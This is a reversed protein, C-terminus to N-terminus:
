GSIVMQEQELRYAKLRREQEMREYEKREKEKAYKKANERQKKTLGTSSKGASSLSNLSVFSVNKSITTSRTSNRKHVVQWGGEDNMTNRESLITSTDNGYLQNYGNSSDSLTSVSITSDSPILPLPPKTNKLHPAKGTSFGPSSLSANNFLNPSSSSSETISLTSNTNTVLESQHSHSPTFTLSNKEAVPLKNKSKKNTKRKQLSSPSTQDVLGNPATSVLAVANSSNSNKLELENIVSSNKNKKMLPREHVPAVVNQHRGQGVFYMILLILAGFSALCLIYLATVPSMTLFHQLSMPKFHDWFRDFTQRFYGLTRPPERLLDCLYIFHFIIQRKFLGVMNFKM